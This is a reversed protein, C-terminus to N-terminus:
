QEKRSEAAPGSENSSSDRERLLQLMDAEVVRHRCVEVGDLHIVPIHEAYEDSLHENGPEDIFVEEYAFPQRRWV